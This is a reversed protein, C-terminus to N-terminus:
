VAQGIAPGQCSHANLKELDLALLTLQQGFDDHLDRAIRKREEEQAHILRSSLNKLDQESRKLETVDTCSGIYGNFNGTIGYRPTGYHIIWRYEGDFRRLRYELEFKQRADFAKHYEAICQDIDEPHVGEAWGNGIEQRFSRGTFDLWGQNFYTCLKDTGAMWVMVPSREVALTFKQEVDFAKGTMEERVYAQYLVNGLIQVQRILMEPWDRQHQTATLTLFGAVSYGSTIPVAAFSKVSNQRFLCIETSAEHPLQNIDEILVPCQELLRTIVWSNEEENFAPQLPDPGGLLSSCLLNFHDGNEKRVFFSVREIGLYACLRDLGGRIEELTHGLLNDALRSTVDALLGDFRRGPVQDSKQRWHMPRRILAVLAPILLLACAAIFFWLQSLKIASFHGVNDQLLFQWIVIHWIVIGRGSFPFLRSMTHKKSNLVRATNIYPSLLLSMEVTDMFYKNSIVDTNNDPLARAVRSIDPEQLRRKSIPQRIIQLPNLGFNYGDLCGYFVHGGLWSASGPLRRMKINAANNAPAQQWGECALISKQDQLDFSRASISSTVALFLICIRRM